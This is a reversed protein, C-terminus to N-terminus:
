NVGGPPGCVSVAVAFFVVVVVVLAGIMVAKVVRNQEWGVRGRYSVRSRWPSLRGKHGFQAIHLTREPPLTGSAPLTM